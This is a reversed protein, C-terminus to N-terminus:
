DNWGNNLTRRKVAELISECGTFEVLNENHMLCPKIKGDSTVRLKGCKACFESHSPSIIEVMAGDVNYVRRGQLKRTESSSALKQIKEEVKSLPYYFKEFTGNDTPILEILQLVLGHERVFELMKDIEDVNVDKMVVMNLKILSFGANKAAILGKEIDILRKPTINSTFSDCGINIRNLGANKLSLALEALRYGNTTINVDNIGPINAINTIIEVIDDRIMPEGGTIKVNSVGFGAFCQVIETIRECT